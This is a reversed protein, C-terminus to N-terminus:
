KTQEKKKKNVLEEPGQKHKNWVDFMQKDIEKGELVLEVFSALIYDKLSM